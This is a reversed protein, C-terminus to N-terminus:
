IQSFKFEGSMKVFYSESDKQIGYLELKHSTRCQLTSQNEFNKEMLAVTM